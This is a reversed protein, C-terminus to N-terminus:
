NSKKRLIRILDPSLGALEDHEAGTILLYGDREHSISVLWPEEPDRWLVLDEPRDPARWGYLGEAEAILVKASDHTMRYDRVCATHSLLRTGPWESAEREVILFPRLSGTVRDAEPSFSLQPQQVLSFRECAGRGVTLLAIYAASTPEALLDYQIIRPM